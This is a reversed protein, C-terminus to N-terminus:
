AFFVEQNLGALVGAIGFAVVDVYGDGNLDALERHWVTDSSWGQSKGFDALDASPPTFTGDGNGFAVMTGGPDFSLIDAFGDHNLDAVARPRADQSTWGQGVGFMATALRVPQFTGDANALAVLTGAYGFGVLDARGDGNVDALTRHFQDDNAWGQNVGFDALATKVPQFTGDGRGLAVLTGAYGFGVIDAKGDGNVDGVTRAFGNQNAWGQNVGFDAIGTTPNDYTGDARALSVLTGAYGFGLIDARGDGNVDALERHFGNDTAWGANQGFNAVALSADSFTGAASGYSVWVGATGFGVIDARGDGNVDAVHRPYVDQSVWGFAPNFNAVLPSGPASFVFSKLGDQFSFQEVHTAVDTGDTLSVVRVQHNAKDITVTAQSRLVSFVAVDNGAGGDIRDDGGNGTIVDRGAAGNLTDAQGGGVLTDNGDDGNLVNLGFGGTLNDDGSGGFLTDNGLGGDITDNGDLGRLVNAGDGGTITNALANGTGDIDGSGLLLVELNDGLTYSSASYVTDLGEGANEVVTVGSTVLYYDNGAGGAFTGTQAPPPFGGGFSSVGDLTDNGAGGVLSDVGGGAILSDDGLGGLLTDNGAGGNLVDNGDGGDLSDNGDEGQLSDLGAGGLLVDDETGGLLSDNGDGGSLFDKGQSGVLYDNGGLGVLSDDGNGGFIQDDGPSGEVTDNGDWAQIGSYSLSPANPGLKILDALPSGFISGIKQFNTATIGGTILPTAGTLDITVAVASNMLNVNLTNIGSGGDVLDGSSATVTDDGAGASVTDAAGDDAQSIEDLYTQILDNGDGGVISDAGLGGRITDAGAGGDIMDGGDGGDISDNGDDGFLVDNGFSGDIRDDGADGHVLDQDDGGLLADNGGGGFLTDNGQDGSVLDSGSTGVFYDDGSDARFQTGTLFGPGFVVHDAYITPDAYANEISRFTAGQFTVETAGVITSLDITLGEGPRAYFAATDTGSVGDFLDGVDVGHIVFYDDGAGGTLSDVGAGGDIYDNGSGTTVTDNGAGTVVSLAISINSFLISDNGSGSQVSVNEFNRFTGFNTTLIGSLGDFSLQLAQTLQTAYIGLADQGGGGDIDLAGAAPLATQLSSIVYSDSGASGIIHLASIEAFDVRDTPYTGVLTGRWTTGSSNIESSNGSFRSSYDVYLADFGGFTNVNSNFANVVDNGLGPRFVDDGTTGYLTDNGDTGTINAM